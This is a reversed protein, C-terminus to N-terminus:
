LPRTSSWCATSARARSAPTVANRLMEVRAAFPAVHDGCGLALGVDPRADTNMRVLGLLM